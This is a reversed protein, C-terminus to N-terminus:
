EEELQKQSDYEKKIGTVLLLNQEGEEVFWHKVDM